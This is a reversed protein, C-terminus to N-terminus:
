KETNSIKRISSLLSDFDSSLPAFFKSKGSKNTLFIELSYAHLMQRTAGLNKSIKKSLKNGYIEDGIVPNGMLSSQIRIQHTRGTKINFEILSIKNKKNDFLNELVKYSSIAIKGKEEGIDAIQKRNKPHRGLYNILEGENNKPWGFCLAWYIKKVTRKQIQKSLSHLTKCNKAVIIIGSTDKDLRHVLGPRKKSILNNKDYIAETIKPFYAVLANVLTGESNGAAPHVVLGPQKNVVIVNEDEFIINLKIKQPKVKKDESEKQFNIKILDNEKLIYSPKVSKKNVLVFNDEVLNSFYNRSYLIFKKSLFKDIRKGAENKTIKINNM